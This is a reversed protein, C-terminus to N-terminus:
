VDLSAVTKSTMSSMAFVSSIEGFGGCRADHFIDDHEAAVLLAINVANPVIIGAKKVKLM